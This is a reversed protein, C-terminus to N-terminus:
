RADRRNFWRELEAVVREVRTPKLSRLRQHRLIGDSGSNCFDVIVWYYDTAAGAPLKKGRVYYHYVGLVSEWLRLLTEPCPSQRLDLEWQAATIPLFTVFAEAFQALLGQTHENRFM